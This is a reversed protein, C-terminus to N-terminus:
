VIKTVEHVTAQWSGRDMPNGLCSYQFSCGNGEGPSRGLGPILSVAGASCMSEKDSFWSPLRILYTSNELLEVVSLIFLLKFFKM